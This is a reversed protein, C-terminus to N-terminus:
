AVRRFNVSCMPTGEGGRLRTRTRWGPSNPPQSPKVTEFSWPMCPGRRSTTGAPPGALLHMLTASRATGPLRSRTSLAARGGARSRLLENCRDACCPSTTTAPDARLPVTAPQLLSGLTDALGSMFPRGGPCAFAAARAAGSATPVEDTDPPKGCAQWSEPCDRVLLLPTTFAIPFASGALAHGSASTEGVATALPPVASGAVSCGTRASTAIGLGGAGLGTPSSRRPLSVMVFSSKARSSSDERRFSLRIFKKM